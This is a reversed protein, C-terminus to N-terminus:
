GRGYRAEDWWFVVLGIVALGVAWATMSLWDTLVIRHDEGGLLAQRGLSLMLAFPQYVIIDAFVSPLNQAYHVVPFFVGSVYRLLRVIVPILNALDRSINVLRACIFAVGVLAIGQLLVAVPFLLWEWDPTEGTAFMLGFLVVFAPISAIFETVAVSLPLIARPFHLARVLSLNGTIAKAGRTVVSSTFAFMVVGIGLFGVFNDIGGRTGLLLGFVAYYSAILLVPNLITWLQGLRNDENKAYSEASSLTWIFSRRSWLDALYRGLPPRESLTRLGHRAALDAAEQTSLAPPLSAREPAETM